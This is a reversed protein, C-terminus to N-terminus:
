LFLSEIYSFNKKKILLNKYFYQVTEIIFAYGIAFSLCFNQHLMDKFFGKEQSFILEFVYTKDM